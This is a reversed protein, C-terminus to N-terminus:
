ALKARLHESVCSHRIQSNGISLNRANLKNGFIPPLLKRFRSHNDIRGSRPDVEYELFNRDPTRLQNASRLATMEDDRWKGARRRVRDVDLGAAISPRDENNRPVFDIQNTSGVNAKFTVRILDAAFRPFDLVQKGFRIESQRIRVERAVANEVSVGAHPRKRGSIVFVFLADSPTVEDAFM